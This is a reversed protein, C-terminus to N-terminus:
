GGAAGRRELEEWVERARRELDALSGVPRGYYTGGLSHAADAVVNLGRAHAAPVIRDYDAPHGGYDIPVVLKTRPGIAPEILAPDIAGTLPEVDM